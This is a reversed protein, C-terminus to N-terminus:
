CTLQSSQGLRGSRWREVEKKREGDVIAREESSTGPRLLWESCFGM